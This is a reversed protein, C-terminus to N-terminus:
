AREEMVKGVLQPLTDFVDYINAEHWAREEM